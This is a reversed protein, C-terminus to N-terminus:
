FKKMGDPTIVVRCGDVTLVIGTRVGFFRCCFVAGGSQTCAITLQQERYSSITRVGHKSRNLQLAANKPCFAHEDSILADAKRSTSFNERFHNM